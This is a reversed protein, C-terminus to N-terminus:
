WRLKQYNIARIDKTDPAGGQCEGILWKALAVESGSEGGLPGLDIAMAANSLGDKDRQTQVSYDTAGRGPECVGNPKCACAGFIRDKGLHYGGCHTTTSGVVGLFSGGVSTWVSRLAALSAPQFSM